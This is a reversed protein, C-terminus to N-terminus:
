NSTKTLKKNHLYEYIFNPLLGNLLNLLPYICYYKPLGLLKVGNIRTKVSNMRDSMKRRKFTDKIELITYLVDDMNEGIFGANIFRIWLDVDEVRIAREELSYGELKEYVYAYTLITAHSFTSSKICDVATPRKPKKITGIIKEGDFTEVGTGVLDVEPHERLYNVQKEIRDPYSYDDGDMRAIYKGTAYKLCHNLSYPLKMNKENQIFIIKNPYRDVYSKVIEVTNDKSCDNCIVLEIDDYTQNLISDISSAVTEACNYVAMIVSVKENHIKNLKENM